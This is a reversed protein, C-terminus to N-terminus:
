SRFLRTYQTEHRMSCWDVVPAAAGLDDPDIALASSVTAQVAPELAALVALGDSQGLPVLRVAASVLNAAFAQTFAALAPVLPMGHAAAALAVGVPLSPAIARTAMAGTWGSLRLSPWARAVAALFAAGQAHSELALEATGRLASALEAIDLLADVDNADAARWTLAFLQTDSRGAGHRLIGDIWALAQDRDAVLGAEVAYELGHSYSFGGTPFAPSLWAMLRYLAAPALHGAFTM